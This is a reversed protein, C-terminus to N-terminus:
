WVDCFDMREVVGNGRRCSLMAIVGRDDLEVAVDNKVILGSVLGVLGVFRYRVSAM